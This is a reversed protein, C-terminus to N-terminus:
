KIQNNFLFQRFSKILKNNLELEFELGHNVDSYVDYNIRKSKARISDCSAQM